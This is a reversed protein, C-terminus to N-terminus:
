QKYSSFLGVVCGKAANYLKSFKNEECLIIRAVDYLSALIDYFIYSPVKLLYRKWVIVRNRYITYRRQPSHNTATLTIGAIGHETKAGLNHHLIANKVAIIHYNNEILRLCYETDIYDIFFDEHMLGQEKLVSTKLLSGSAIACLIDLIPEQGFESRKFFISGNRIIYKPHYNKLNEHIYPAIIAIESGNPQHLYAQKMNKVMNKEPRSDDDLLLIWQANQEMARKIGINQAKSLGLNHSNLILITKEVHEKVFAKLKEQISLNSHNDVIILAEVQTIVAQLNDIFRSDPNYTVIIATINGFNTNM